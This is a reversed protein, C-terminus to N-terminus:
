EGEPIRKCAKDFRVYKWVGDDLYKCVVGDWGFLTNDYYNEVIMNNSECIQNLQFKDHFAFSFGILLIIGAVIILGSTM